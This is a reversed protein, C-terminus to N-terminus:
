HNPQLDHSKSESLLFIPFAFFAFQAKQTHMSRSSRHSPVHELETRSQSPQARDHDKQNKPYHTDGVVSDNQSSIARSQVITAKIRENSKDDQDQEMEQHTM